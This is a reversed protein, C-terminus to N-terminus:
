TVFCGYEMAAIFHRIRNCYFSMELSFVRYIRDRYLFNDTSPQWDTGQRTLEACALYIARFRSVHPICLLCLHSFHAGLCNVFAYFISLRYGGNREDDDCAHRVLTATLFTREGNIRLGFFSKLVFLLKFM